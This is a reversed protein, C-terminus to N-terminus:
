KAVVASSFNKSNANYSFGFIQVCFIVLTQLFNYFTTLIEIDVTIANAKIAFDSKMGLVKLDGAAQESRYDNIASNGAIRQNLKWTEKAFSCCARMNAHCATTKFWKSSSFSGKQHLCKIWGIDVTLTFVDLPNYETVKFFYILLKSM